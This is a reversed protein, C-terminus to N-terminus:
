PCIVAGATESLLGKKLLLGACRDAENLTRPPAPLEAGVDSDKHASVFGEELLRDIARHLRSASKRPLPLLGVRCGSTLAEYIMSVSDETVWVDRSRALTDALWGPRCSNWLAVKVGAAEFGVLERNVQEPTRPSNSLIWYRPSTRELVQRIRSLLTQADVRYHRSPGGVLILGHEPDHNRTAQMPNVAGTTIIVNDRVPPDDHAPVLCYDFWDLPVSPRMLVVTRARCARSVALLAAHTAHGAGVAVQPAPLDGAWATQGTLCSTLSRTLPPATVQHVALPARRGLAEILGTSQSLHGRKGDCIQWLIVPDNGTQATPNL